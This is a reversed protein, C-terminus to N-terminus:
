NDDDSDDLYSHKLSNWKEQFEQLEDEDMNTDIDKEGPVGDTIIVKSAYYSDGISKKHFIEVKKSQDQKEDMTSSLKLSIWKEQFEQLEDEDMNTDIDKEGPVGDTIIVKVAYYSDGISKKHFIEVNQGSELDMKKSSRRMFVLSLGLTLITMLKVAMMFAMTNIALSNSDYVICQIQKLLCAQDVLAGYILPGLMGVLLGTSQQLATALTSLNQAACDRIVDVGPQTPLFTVVMNILILLAFYIHAECGEERCPELNAHATQTDLICSCNHFTNTTEDKLQCGAFCPNYHQFTM